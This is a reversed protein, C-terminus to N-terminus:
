SKSYRNLSFMSIFILPETNYKTRVKRPSQVTHTHTNHTLYVQKIQENLGTHTRVTGAAKM